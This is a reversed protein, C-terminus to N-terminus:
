IKFNQVSENLNKSLQSFVNSNDYVKQVSAIQEQTCKQVNNSDAAIESSFSNIEYILQVLNDKQSDMEQLYDTIEYLKGSIDDIYRTIEAFSDITDSVSKNQIDAGDSVEKFSNYLKKTNNGINEIMSRITSAQVNTQESLNKIEQAVIAFGRGAEGARSAEISANLSLLNTQKAINQITTTITNVKKMESQLEAVVEKMINTSEMSSLSKIRLNNIQTKGNEASKNLLSLYSYVNQSLERSTAIQGALSEIGQSAYETDDAQKKINEDIHFISKQTQESQELSCATAENMVDTMTDIEKSVASINSILNNLNSIMMYFTKRLSNIEHINSINSKTDIELYGAEVKKMQNTLEVVPKALHKSYIISIILALILSIIIIVSLVLIYQRVPSMVSSYDMQASVIWSGYSSRNMNLVKKVNADNYIIERDSNNKNIQNIFNEDTIKQGTKSKDQHFIINFDNDLIIIESEINDVKVTKFFNDYNVLATISGSFGVLSKIAKTIPIVEKKLEESYFPNGVVISDSNTTKIQQFLEMNYFNKDKFIKYNKSGTIIIKGNKDCLYMTEILKNSNDVVNKMSLQISSYIVTDMNNSSNVVELGVLFDPQSSVGKIISDISNIKVDITNMTNYSTTKLTSLSLETIKGITSIYTSIGISIIPILTVTVLVWLLQTRLKINKNLIKNHIYVKKMNAGWHM